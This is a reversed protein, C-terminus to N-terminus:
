KVSSHFYFICEQWKILGNPPTRKKNCKKNLVAINVVARAVNRNIKNNCKKKLLKKGPLRKNHDLAEESKYMFFKPLFYYNLLLLFHLHYLRLLFENRPFSYLLFLIWLKLMKSIEWLLFLMEFNEKTITGHLAAVGIHMESMWDHFYIFFSM